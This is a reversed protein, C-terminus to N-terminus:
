LSEGLGANASQEAHSAMYARWSMSYVGNMFERLGSLNLNIRGNRHRMAWM